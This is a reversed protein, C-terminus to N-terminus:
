RVLAEVEIVNEPEHNQRREYEALARDMGTMGDVHGNGSTKGNERFPSNLWTRWTANRDKVPGNKRKWGCSDWYDNFRQLEDEFAQGVLGKLTADAEARTMDLPPCHLTKAVNKTAHESLDNGVDEQPIETTVNGSSSLSTRVSVLPDAVFHSASHTANENCKTADLARKKQSRETSTLARKAQEERVMALADSLQSRLWRIEEKLDAIQQDKTM